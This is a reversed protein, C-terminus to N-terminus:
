LATPRVSSFYRSLTLTASAPNFFSCGSASRCDPPYRWSCICKRRPIRSTRSAKTVEGSSNLGGSSSTSFSRVARSSSNNRSSNGLGDAPLAAFFSSFGHSIRHPPYRHAPNARRRQCQQHRSSQRRFLQRLLIIKRRQFRVLNAIRFRDIFFHAQIQRKRFVAQLFELVFQLM